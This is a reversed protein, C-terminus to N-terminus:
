KDKRAKKKLMKIREYRRVEEQQHRPLERFRKIEDYERQKKAEKKEKIVQGREGWYKANFDAMSGRKISKAFQIIKDLGKKDWYKIGNIRICPPILTQGPYSKSIQGERVMESYKFWRNITSKQRMTLLAADGVTYLQKGNIIRM